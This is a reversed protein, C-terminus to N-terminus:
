VVAGKPLRGWHKGFYRLMSKFHWRMHLFSRRSARQGDHVVLAAPCALVGMGKRWARACIDVDEYYLFFGEDFGNLAAYADSRFCMCLGSVWEVSFAPADPAPHEYRGDGLGWWKRLLGFLTPFRRWGDEPTGLASIARPSVLGVNSQDAAQLLAPFPNSQLMVDPNLVVFWQSQCRTFAENHNAGFGKPRSNHIVVVRSDDPLALREPVNFTVLLQGVEPCALLQQVLAAVMQGHDHSVLSVTVVTDRQQVLPSSRYM